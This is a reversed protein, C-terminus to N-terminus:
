YGDRATVLEEIMHVDVRVIPCLLKVQGASFPKQRSRSRRLQRAGTDGTEGFLTLSVAADTGANWLEGTMVTVEYAVASVCV